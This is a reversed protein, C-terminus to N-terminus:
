DRTFVDVLGMDVLGQHVCRSTGLELGFGIWFSILVVFDYIWNVFMVANGSGCPLFDREVVSELVSSKGPSQGGIVAITPLAEWLSM